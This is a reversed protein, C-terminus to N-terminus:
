TSVLRIGRSLTFHDTIYKHSVLSLMHKYQLFSQTKIYCRVTVHNYCLEECFRLLKCRRRWVSVLLM